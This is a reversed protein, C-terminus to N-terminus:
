IFSVEGAPVAQITVGFSAISPLTANHHARIAAGTAHTKDHTTHADAALTVDYGLAAARRATTDVCFETAYGSLVLHTVGLKTLLETLHTRLFSDPTTKRISHDGAMSVIRGDLEWAPTGHDLGGGPATEHSVYVVPVGQERARTALNNIRSIMPGLDFPAVKFLGKQVDIVLLASKM